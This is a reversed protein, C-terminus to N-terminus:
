WRAAPRQRWFDGASFVGIRPAGIAGLPKRATDALLLLFSKGNAIHPQHQVQHPIDRMAAKAQCAFVPESGTRAFEWLLECDHM